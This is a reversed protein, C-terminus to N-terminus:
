TKERTTGDNRDKRRVKEKIYAEINLVYLATYERNDTRPYDPKRIIRGCNLNDIVCTPHLASHEFLIRSLFLFLPSNVHVIPTLSM